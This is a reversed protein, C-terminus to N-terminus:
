QELGSARQGSVAGLGQEATLAAATGAGGPVTRMELQIPFCKATLVKLSIIGIYGEIYQTFLLHLALRLLLLLHELALLFLVSPPTEEPYSLLPDVPLQLHLLASTPPPCAWVEATLVLLLVARLRLSPLAPPPPSPSPCSMSLTSRSPLTCASTSPRHILTTLLILCKSHLKTKLCM